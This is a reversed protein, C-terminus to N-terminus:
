ELLTIINYKPTNKQDVFTIAVLPLYQLLQLWRKRKPLEGKGQFFYVNVVTVKNIKQKGMVEMYKCTCISFFLSAVICQSISQMKRTM